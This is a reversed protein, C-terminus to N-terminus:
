NDLNIKIIDMQANNVNAKALNIIIVVLIAPYVSILVLSSLFNVKKVLFVYYQAKKIQLIVLTALNAHTHELKIKIFAKGANQVNFQGQKLLM